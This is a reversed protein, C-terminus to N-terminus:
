VRLLRDARRAAYVSLKRWWRGALLRRAERQEDAEHRLELYRIRSLDEVSFMRIAEEKRPNVTLTTVRNDTM